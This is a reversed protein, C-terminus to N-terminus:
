LDTDITDIRHSGVLFIFSFLFFFFFLDEIDFKLSKWFLGCSDWFYLSTYSCYGPPPFILNFLFLVLINGISAM